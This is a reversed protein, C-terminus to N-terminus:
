NRLYTISSLSRARVQGDLQRTANATLTVRVARIDELQAATPATVETSDELLYDFAISAIDNVIIDPGTEDADLTGSGDDDNDGDNRRLDTGNLDWVITSPDPADNADNVLAIIDGEKYQLSTTHSFNGITITPGTRDVATVLLENNNSADNVPDFPQAGDQPRIIRVTDGVEFRDVSTPVNIDFQQSTEALTVEEDDAIRAFAYFASATVLNLTTANSGVAIGTTGAPVLAEAMKIDKDILNLSVRLNQQVDVLNEQNVTTKQTSSYTAYMGVIALGAVVTVVLLEVLTFGKNNNIVCRM